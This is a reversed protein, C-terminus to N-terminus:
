YGEASNKSPLWYPTLPKWYQKPYDNKRSSVLEGETAFLKLVPELLKQTKTALLFHRLTRLDRGAFKPHAIFVYNNHLNSQQLRIFKNPQEIEFQEFLHNSVAFAQCQSDSSRMQLVVSPVIEIQPANVFDQFLSNILLYDLNLPRSSCVKEGSLDNIEFLARDEQHTAIVYSLPSSLRALPVFNHQSIAWAAFHPPAFYIGTRGSRLGNQYAHWYDSGEVKIQNLGIEGLADELTSILATNKERDIPLYLKIKQKNPKTVNARHEQATSSRSAGLLLLSLAAIILHKHLIVQNLIVFLHSTTLLRQELKTSVGLAVRQTASM